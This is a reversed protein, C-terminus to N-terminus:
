INEKLWFAWVRRSGQLDFAVSRQDNKKSHESDEAILTCRELLSIGSTPGEWCQAFYSYKCTYSICICFNLNERCSRFSFPPQIWKSWVFKHCNFFTNGLEGAHFCYSHIHVAYIIRCGHQKDESFCIYFFILLPASQQSKRAEM